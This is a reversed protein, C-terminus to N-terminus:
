DEAQRRKVELLRQQRTLVRTAESKGTDPKLGKEEDAEEAEEADTLSRLADLGKSIDMCANKMCMKTEASLRRGAKIRIRALAKTVAMGEESEHHLLEAVEEVTMAILAEGIQRMAGKLMDPVSSGDGEQEAELEVWSELYGLEALCRALEGVEYLGKGKATEGLKVLAKITKNKVPNAKERYHALVAKAKEQAEEPLESLRGEMQDLAAGISTLRGEHMKAFPLKYSAKDLPNKDDYLLFGKRAFNADAHDTGLGAHEFISRAAEEENWEEINSVPLNRSAGVRWKQGKEAMELSRATVVAEPNAPVSVLSLELLSWAKYLEGAGKIPEAEVPQFGVSVTNLVGAKALACYEDAKASAGAPAFTILAEIADDGVSIEATGIPLNPDHNALVIPNKQYLSVDCGRPIMIDGIRDKVATSAVVKIQRDTLASDKVAAGAFFKRHM